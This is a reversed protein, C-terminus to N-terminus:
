YVSLKAGTVLSVFYVKAGAPSFAPELPSVVTLHFMSCGSTVSYFLLSFSGGLMPWQDILASLEVQCNRPATTDAQCICTRFGDTTTSTTAM